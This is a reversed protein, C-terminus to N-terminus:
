CRPPPRILGDHFNLLADMPRRGIPRSLLVSPPLTEVEFKDYGGADESITVRLDLHGEVRLRLTCDHDVLTRPVWPVSAGTLPSVSVGIVGFGGTEPGDLLLVNDSLATFSACAVISGLVLM